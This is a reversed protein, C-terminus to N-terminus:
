VRREKKKKCGDHPRPTVDEINGIKLGARSLARLAAQAGKGPSRPGNHGGPARIRVHIGNIGKNIIEEAVIKVAMMATNPSAEQRGQKVVRGGSVFSITEAGTMDTVHILTNNYSSYIHAIGWRIKEETM